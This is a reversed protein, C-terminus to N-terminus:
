QPPLTPTLDLGSYKLSLKRVTGDEVASRIAKDFLAKLEPENKRLGMGTESVLIGGNILPGSIMMDENGPKKLMLSAYVSNDFGADIRGAKIDLDRDQSTKYVRVTVDDGFYSKIVQEHSSSQVVGVVKGKLKQRIDEIVPDAKEKDNLSFREGTIPLDAISGGKPLIFTSVASRYPLTFEVAERRKETFGLTLLLDFKGANLSPILSSWEGTVFECEVKARSCLEQAQEIDWGSLKGDPGTDSYPPFVGEVGLKVHKWEKALAGQALFGAALAAALFLKLKM